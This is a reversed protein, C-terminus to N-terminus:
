WRSSGNEYHFSVNDIPVIPVRKARKCSGKVTAGSTSIADENVVYESDSSSMKM